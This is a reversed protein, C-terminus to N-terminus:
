TFGQRVSMLHPPLLLGGRQLSKSGANLSIYLLAAADLTEYIDM